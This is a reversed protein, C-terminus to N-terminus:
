TPERLGKSCFTEVPDEQVPDILSFMVLMCLIVQQVVFTIVDGQLQELLPKSDDLANGGAALVLTGGPRLGISGAVSQRLDEVTMNDELPLQVESGDLGSVTLQRGVTSSDVEDLRQRLVRGEGQPLRARYGQALDAMPGQAKPKPSGASSTAGVVKRTFM